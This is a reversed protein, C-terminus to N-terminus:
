PGGPTSPGPAPPEDDDGAHLQRLRARRRLQFRRFARKLQERLQRSLGSQHQEAADGHAGDYGPNARASEVVRERGGDGGSPTRTSRDPVRDASGPGLDAGRDLYEPESEPASRGDQVEQTRLPEEAYQPELLARVDGRKVGKGALRDLAGLETGSEQDVVIWTRDGQTVTLAHEDLADELADRSDSRSWAHAVAQRVQRMDRGQRKARQRQKDGYSALAPPGETLPRMAEADSDLGRRLMEYYVSRNHRGRTLPQGLKLEARRAVFENQIYTYRASAVRQTIPNWESLVAHWHREYGGANRPKKHEVLTLSDPNAGIEEAYIRAITRAQDSSIAEDATPSIALHRLGYRIGEAYADRMGDRLDQECGQLILVEENEATKNLHRWLPKSGSSTRIRTSKLNM